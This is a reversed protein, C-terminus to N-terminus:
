MSRQTSSLSWWRVLSPSCWYRLREWACAGPLRSTAIVCRISLASALSVAAADEAAAATSSASRTVSRSCPAEGSARMIDVMVSSPSRWRFSRFSRTGQSTNTHSVYRDTKSMKREEELSSTTYWAVAFRAKSNQSLNLRFTSNRRSHSISRECRPLRALAPSPGTGTLSLRRRPQSPHVSSEISSWRWVRKLCSSTVVLSSSHVSPNRVTSSMWAMMCMLGFFGGFDRTM